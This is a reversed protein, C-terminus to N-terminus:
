ARAQPWSTFRWILTGASSLCPRYSSGVDTPSNDVDTPSNNVDTPANEVDTPLLADRQLLGLPKTFGFKCGRYFM